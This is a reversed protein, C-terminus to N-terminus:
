SRTWWHFVSGLVVVALVLIIVAVSIKIIKVRQKVEPDLMMRERLDGQIVRPAVALGAPEAEPIASAGTDVATTLLAKRRQRKDQTTFQLMITRGCAPCERSRTVSTMAVEVPQECHPCIIRTLPM